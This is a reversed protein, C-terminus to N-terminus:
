RPDAMTRGESAGKRGIGILHASAGVISPEDELRRAVHLIDARALPDAWRGDFDGLTWGPGEVGLV